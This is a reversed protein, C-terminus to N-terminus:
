CHGLFSVNGSISFGETINLLSQTLLIRYLQERAQTLDSHWLLTDVLGWTDTGAPSPQALLSGAM